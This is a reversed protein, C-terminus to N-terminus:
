QMDNIEGGGIHISKFQNSRISSIDDKEEGIGVDTM